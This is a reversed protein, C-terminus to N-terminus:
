IATSQKILNLEYQNDFDQMEHIMKEWSIPVYGTIKKLKSSDLTRNIEVSNDPIILIDKQYIKKILSLLSYKDISQSSLHYLGSLSPFHLIYKEIFKAFEYTTVGSFIAKKYGRVESKQSLFWDLLSIHEGLEKGIFSTRLTLSNKRVVEGLYKTKGYLDEANSINDETYPNLFNHGSFVCDTSIHILRANNEITIDALLHPYYANIYVANKIDSAAPLQKILGICNIVIDPKINNIIKELESINHIDTYLIINKRLNEPFFSLKDTSRMTGYVDFLQHSSLYRYLSNGVMGTAGLILLKM